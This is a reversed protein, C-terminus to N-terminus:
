LVPLYRQKLADTGFLAVPVSGLGQIAVACDATGSYAALTERIICLSRVDIKEFVGGWQAPALYRLWGSEGLAGTIRRTANEVDHEDPKSCNATANRGPRCIRRLSM